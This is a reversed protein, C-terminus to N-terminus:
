LENRYRSCKEQLIKGIGTRGMQGRLREQAQKAKISRDHRYIEQQQITKQGLAVQVERFDKSESGILTAYTHRIIYFGVGYKREVAARDCLREFRIKIADARRLKGDSKMEQWCFPRGKRTVFFLESTKEDRPKGRHEKVYLNLIQVTEPWLNFDRDVGTKPRPHTITGTIFNVDKQKLTGIDSNGFGCNLGLMLLASDVVDAARLLKELDSWTLPDRNQKRGHGKKANRMLSFQRICGIPPHSIGHLKYGWLLLMRVHDICHNATKLGISADEALHQRYGTLYMASLDEAAKHDVAFGQSILWDLFRQLYRKISALFLESCGDAARFDYYHAAMEILSWTDTEPPPPSPEPWRNVHESVVQVINARYLDKAQKKYKSWMYKTRGCKKSPDKVNSYWWGTSKDHLLGPVKRRSVAMFCRERVDESKTM